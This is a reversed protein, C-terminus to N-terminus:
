SLTVDSNCHWGDSHFSHKM